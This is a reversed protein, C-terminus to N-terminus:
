NETQCESRVIREAGQVMHDFGLISHEKKLTNSTGSDISFTVKRLSRSRMKAGRPRMKAAKPPRSTKRPGKQAGKPEQTGFHHRKPYGGPSMKPGNKVGFDYLVWFFVFFNTDPPPRSFPSTVLRAQLPGLLSRVSLYCHKRSTPWSWRLDNQSAEPSGKSVKKPVKQARPRM